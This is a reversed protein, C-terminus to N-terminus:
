GASNADEWKGSLPDQVIECSAINYSGTATSASVLKGDVLIRCHVAGGGNLQADVSYDISHELKATVKMPVRGNLTSGSPGYQVSASSGWVEYSVTSPAAAAAKAPHSAPTSAPASATPTTAAAPTKKGSASGAAVAIILVVVAAACILVVNRATHKRKPPRPPPRYGGPPQQWGQPPLPQQPQQWPPQDGPPRGYPDTM